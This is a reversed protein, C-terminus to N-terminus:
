AGERLLETLADALPDVVDLAQQLTNGGSGIELLLSHPALEQNYSANRLSVPRCLATETALLRERLALALALNNQWQPCATGNGDTGVVAMVQARGSESSTRVYDGDTTLISDRHLDIVYRITPYKELYNEICGKACTYANRLTGEEGHLSPCHVTPIGRKNLADCLSKGVAVVTRQPDTSYVQDGIVGTLYATESDLYAESAHTHLILVLPGDQASPITAEGRWAQKLAQLDPRYLTENHIFDMGNALASLDKSVIRTADEPIASETPPPEAPMDTVPPTPQTNTNKDGRWFAEIRQAIASEDDMFLFLISVTAVLLSLTVLLALFRGARRNLGKSLVIPPTPPMIQGQETKM